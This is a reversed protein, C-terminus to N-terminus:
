RKVITRLSEEGRSTCSVSTRSRPRMAKNLLRSSCGYHLLLIAASTPLLVTRLRALVLIALPAPVARARHAGGASRALMGQGRSM